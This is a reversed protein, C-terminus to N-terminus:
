KYDHIKNKDINVKLGIDKASNLIIHTNSILVEESDGLLAMDDAYM